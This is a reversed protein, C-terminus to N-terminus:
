GQRFLDRLDRRPTHLTAPAHGIRFFMQATESDAVATARKFEKQLATMDAYEQLIQSLPHIRLGISTATLQVRAYRRGALLQDRRTNRGSVLLGFAAASRAQDSLLTVSQRSFSGDPKKADERSIMFTEAFWKAIGVRGSHGLGFGDRKQEVERDNFRFWHALEEDRDRGAVEVAMAARAIAALRARQDADDIVTLRLGDGTGAAVLREAVGAELPRGDYPLKNTCRQQIFGFLPDKAIAADPVLRVTAVPRDDVVDRAYEGSPFYEIRPDFGQERAALDLLELFTGQGLHVQRALPDSAPLLRERDVYLSVERPRRLEIRWSQANHPSPALLAYALAVMLPDREDPPPGEWPRLAISPRTCGDTLFLVGIGAATTQLLRRRTPLLNLRM